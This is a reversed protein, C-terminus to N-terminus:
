SVRRPPQEAPFVKGSIVAWRHPWTHHKIVTEYNREILASYETFTDLLTLIQKVPDAMNLEVVPNYGFLSVLEAPAHGVVLCRSTMSQLYRMSLVEIDGSQEPHTISSPVCISIKTRALGDVFGERTPFIIKHKEKEYLYVKGREALPALLMEHLRDYRRGLQLVDIDKRAAPLSAYSEPEIAEPVWEVECPALEERLKRAAISSSLFLHRVSFRQVLERIDGYTDPWADLLYVSKRGPLLFYPMCRRIDASMLTVFYDRGTDAAPMGPVRSDHVKLMRWLRHAIKAVFRNARVPKVRPDRLMARQFEAVTDLSVHYEGLPDLLLHMMTTKSLRENQQKSM